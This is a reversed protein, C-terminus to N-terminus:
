VLKEKKLSRLHQEFTQMGVAANTQIVSAMQSIKDERILNRIASNALMIEMAAVRGGEKKPILTQSIIAQLSESLMSRVLAREEGPFVDIIRHISGATSSTHLTAFVLHGTEAATLALRITDLDRMEGVLIIDPDERLAARLASSFSKTNKHLERQHILSKNSEYLFEIPDEITIIHASKEHNVANIMSALTTSKGSGTPGTVLVLGHPLDTLSQIIDPLHLEKLTPIKQPIVRFAAAIGQAEYFINVRFRGVNKVELSFDVDWHEALQKKVHENMCKELMVLCKKDDLLPADLVETLVGDIRLRPLFGSTLHLDSANRQASLKLLEEITM